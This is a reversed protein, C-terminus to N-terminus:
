MSAREDRDHLTQRGSQRHILRQDIVLQAPALKTIAAAPAHLDLTIVGLYQGADSMTEREPRWESQQDFVFVPGVPGVDHSGLWAVERRFFRSSEFARSRTVGIQGAAQLIVYAIQAVDEFTGRRAFSARADRTSCERFLQQCDETELYATVHDLEAANRVRRELQIPVRDGRNGVVRRQVAGVVFRLLSHDLEDVFRAFLAVRQAANEFNNGTANHGTQTRVRGPIELQVPQQRLGHHRNRRHLRHCDARARLRTTQGTRFYVVLNSVVGLRALKNAFRVTGATEFAAYGIAFLNANATM